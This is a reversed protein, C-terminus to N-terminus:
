LGDIVEGAFSLDWMTLPNFGELEPYDELMMETSNQLAELTPVPQASVESRLTNYMRELDFSRQGAMLKAPEGKIIALTTAPDDRFVRATEFAARVLAGVEDRRKGATERSVTLTVNGVFEPAGIQIPKLGADLAPQAYLNAVFAAQCEGSAVKKWEGWRGVERTPVIVQQVSDRLGANKLWIREALKTPGHDRTAIRGGKLDEIGKVDPSVFLTSNFSTGSGAVCVFPAGRKRFRQLQWYSEALVDAVGKLLFEGYENEATKDVEVSEEVRLTLGFQEAVHKLTFLYPTRDVDRYLVRLAGM